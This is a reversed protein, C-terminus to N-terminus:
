LIELIGGALGSFCGTAVGRMFSELSVALGPFHGQTVRQRRGSM